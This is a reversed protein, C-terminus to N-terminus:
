RADARKAVERRREISPQPMPGFRLAKTSILNTGVINEACFSKAHADEPFPKDFTVTLEMSGIYAPGDAAFGMSKDTAATLDIPTAELPGFQIEAYPHKEIALSREPSFAEAMTTLAWYAEGTRCDTTEPHLLVLRDLTIVRDKRLALRVGGYLAGECMRQSQCYEGKMWVLNLLEDISVIQGRVVEARVPPSLLVVGALMTVLRSPVRTGVKDPM